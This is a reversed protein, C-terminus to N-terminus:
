SSSTALRGSAGTLDRLRRVTAEDLMAGTSCRWQWQGDARGPTNMRAEAGLGLLDQLPTVALAAPSEWALRVLEDPVQSADGPARQLYAWLNRRQHEPLAEYWARTTDNDHTGTYAVSNHVCNHPLHPNRPDGDFAFQLVRMGPLSFEDRLAEVPPTILGLDEALLPLGGLARQLARFFDAGPGRVWRGERASRAGAPVHWASEFARFHDIRIADLYQLRARLREIWWRFGTQRLADWDYLPNGWLQGDASFYDPPVGALERPALDWDVLFMEPATWVDASEPAVFIPLDGLLRVGRRHAHARLTSWQRLVLFQGFLFREIEEGLEQRARAVAADERRLLPSPWQQLPVGAHRQKLAVFLAVDSQLAAKEDRYRDYDRELDPRAGRKLNHWAKALVFAKFATVREFDVTGVTFPHETELDRADLLGDAVLLEASLVVPNAAFSSLAQYPSYGYGTPGLPLVQWWRQGADALRDIWAFATPGLDGIGHPSPLSTVHLLVGGARYGAPFPALFPEADSIGVRAGPAVAAGTSMPREAGERCREWAISVVTENLRLM